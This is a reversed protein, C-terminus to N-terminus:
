NSINKFGYISVSLLTITATIVVLSWLIVNSDSEEGEVSEVKEKKSKSSTKKTKSKPKSKSAPALKMKEDSPKTEVSELEEKKSKKTKSKPRSKSAPALIMEVESAKTEEDDIRSAPKSELKGKKSKSSTKKSKSAPALIMEVESAKTEEDDIRSAPKSEVKEMKSKSSTKKSKSASALKMQFESAKTEEDDDISSRETTSAPKTEVSEVEEKKSKSSSKKTGKPKSKSGPALKMQVENIKGSESISAPKVEPEQKPKSTSTESITKIEPTEETKDLTHDLRVGVNICFGLDTPPLGTLDMRIKDLEASEVRIKYWSEIGYHFPFAEVVKFDVIKGLWPIEKKGEREGVLEYDVAESESIIKVHAGPLVPRFVFSPPSIYGYDKLVELAKFVWDDELDLYVMGSFGDQALIGSTPLDKVAEIVDAPKPQDMEYIKINNNAAMVQNSSLKNTVPSLQLFSYSLQASINKVNVILINEDFVRKQDAMSISLVQQVYILDFTIM